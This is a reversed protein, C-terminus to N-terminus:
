NQGNWRRLIVMATDGMRGAPREAITLKVNRAELSVKVAEWVQPAPALVKAVVVGDEGRRDYATGSESGGGLGTTSRNGAQVPSAATEVNSPACAALMSALAAVILRQMRDRNHM